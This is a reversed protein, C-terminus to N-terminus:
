PPVKPYSGSIGLGATGGSFNAFLDGDNSNAPNDIQCFSFYQIGEINPINIDLILTWQNVKTATVDGNPVAGHHVVFGIQPTSAGAFRMVKAPEGNIDPIGFSRTTGFKTQAVTPGAPGGMYELASGVTASLDGRDFDWQGTISKKQESSRTT